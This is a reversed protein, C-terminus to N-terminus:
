ENQIELDHLWEEYISPNDLLDFNNPHIYELLVRGTTLNLLYLRPITRDPNLAKTLALNAKASDFPLAYFGMDMQKMHFYVRGENLENSVIVFEIAELGYDAKIGYYFDVVKHIYEKQKQLKWGVTWSPAFLIGVIKKDTLTELVKSVKKERSVLDTKPFLLNINLEVDDIFTGDIIRYKKTDGLKERWENFLKMVPEINGDSKNDINLAEMERLESLSPGKMIEFKNDEFKWPNFLLLEPEQSRTSYSIGLKPAVSRLLRINNSANYFQYWPLQFNTIPLRNRSGLDPPFQVMDISRSGYQQHIIKFLKEVKEHFEM